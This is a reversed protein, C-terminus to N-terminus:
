FEGVVERVRELMIGHAEDNLHIGDGSDFRPNITNDESVFPTWFDISRDGFKAYTSDLLELQIAVSEEGFNRPQPTTVYVPVDGAAELMMKYNALQDAVGIGRAADNSPLNIIICSPDFALAASINHLTDVFLGTSTDIATGDPLLHFTTYGGVALNEVKVTSDVESLNQRFRWVWASDKVSPGYGAATSSGIVVVRNFVEEVEKVAPKIEKPSSNCAVLILSVLVMTKM